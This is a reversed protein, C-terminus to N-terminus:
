GMIEKWKAIGEAVEAALDQPPNRYWKIQDLSRGEAWPVDTRLTPWFNAALIQSVELDYLFDSFLKAANPHPAKLPIANLGLNLITGDTPPQVNIPNGAARQTLSFSFPAGLGVLREGSLIDTVTDVNSQGVKPNLKSLEKLYHDGYKKRMAVLWSAVDGSFAPSGVTLKNAWQSDLAAEWTAPASSVKDSQYNLCTLSIAGVQYMDDKDLSQFESPLFETGAPKYPLLAGIKKLELYHLINTSGLSDCNPANNQLELRLRTYVTQSAQRLLNVKIGPYRKIFADRIAEITKQEYSGWYLNLAGEKRAAEYLSSDAAFSPRILGGAMLGVGAIGSAQLFKRRTFEVM